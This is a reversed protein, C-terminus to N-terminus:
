DSRVAPDVLLTGNTIVAVPKNFYERCKDILWGIDRNLTPEGDGVFTIFDIDSQNKYQKIDDWIQEKPFFSKREVSLKDTNGLQCYACSLTCTKAPIPSIGLSVGLRRSPVPGFTFKM